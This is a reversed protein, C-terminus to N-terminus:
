PHYDISPYASRPHPYEHANISELIRPDRIPIPRARKASRIFAWVIIGGIGVLAAIDFPSINFGQVYYEKEPHYLKQPLINWYMDLLHFGVIWISIAAIRWGFKNHYFLLWIFPFFFYGFIIFRSIIYWSSKMMEGDMYTLERISYWFVEEPINANYQLFFQSFSIYAWFVTFALLLCGLMYSHAHNFIGKLHGKSALYLCLLITAAIGARMSAAFFWVGFMTSFWHYELSKIWLISYLTLAGATAIVGFCSWRYVIRFHRADGDIDLACSHHRLQWALLNLIGFTFVTLGVFMPLNLLAAKKLYLPDHGVTHGGPILNELDMWIWPMADSTPNLWIVVLLPVYILSVWKMAGLAHELQRRIIAMWGADFIYSLMTLLLTGILLSLWFSGAILFSFFPRSDNNQFGMFLGIAAVSLGVVGIILAIMENNRRGGGAAVSVPMTTAESSM